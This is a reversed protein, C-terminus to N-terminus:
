VAVTWRLDNLDESFELWIVTNAKLVQKQITIPTIVNNTSVINEFSIEWFMGDDSFKYCGAGYIIISGAILHLFQRLQM